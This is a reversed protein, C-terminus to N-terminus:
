IHLVGAVMSIVQTLRGQKARKSVAAPTRLRAGAEVSSGGGRPQPSAGLDALALDFIRDMVMPRTIM